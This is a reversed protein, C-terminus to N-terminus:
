QLWVLSCEISYIEAIIKDAKAECKEIRGTFNDVRVLGRPLAEVSYRSSMALFVIAGANALLGVTVAVLMIVRM